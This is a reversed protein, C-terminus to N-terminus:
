PGSPNPNPPRGPASPYESGPPPPNQITVATHAVNPDNDSGPDGPLFHYDDASIDTDVWDGSDIEAQQHKIAQEILSKSSLEQSFGNVLQSTAVLKALNFNLVPSATADGPMIFVLQGAQLNISHGNALTVKGKGELFIVKFGGNTTAIVILTTGLVAASAGGSKITGGGLGKPAHFLLSGQELNLTRGTDAFSFVTNAGVRTITQDPATLETRSQPGTRVRQPAKLIESVKAPSANGDVTLTNVQNIIETFTSETLSGAQLSCCGWVALVLM